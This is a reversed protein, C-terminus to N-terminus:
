SENVRKLLSEIQESFGKLNYDDAVDIMLDYCHERKPHYRGVRIHAQSLAAVYELPPCRHLHLGILIDFKRAAFEKATNSKPHWYWNLDKNNFYKFIVNEHDQRDDFYGLISVQKDKNILLERYENIFVRSAPQTADFLIGVTEALQFNMPKSQRTDAASALKKKLHYDYIKYRIDNVQQLM